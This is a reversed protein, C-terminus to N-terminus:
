ETYQYYAIQQNLDKRISTGVKEALTSDGAKIAALYFQAAIQNHNQGRSVLGYPFNEQLMM